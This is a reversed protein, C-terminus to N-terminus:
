HPTALVYILVANRYLFLFAGANEADSTKKMWYTFVSTLLDFRELQHSLDVIFKFLKRKRLFDTEPNRLVHVGAPFGITYNSANLYKRYHYWYLGRAVRQFVSKTDELYYTDFAILKEHTLIGTWADQVLISESRALQECIRGNKQITSRHNEVSEKTEREMQMTCLHLLHKANEDKVNDGNNCSRCSPVTIANFQNLENSTFFCRPPVHDKSRNKKDLEVFCYVCKPDKSNENVQHM